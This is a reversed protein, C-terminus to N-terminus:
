GAMARLYPIKKLVYIIGFSVALCLISIIPISVIVPLRTYTIGHKFFLDLVLIHVLFIGYSEASIRGVWNRLLLPLNFPSNKFLLYICACMVAINPKFNDMYTEDMAHTSASLRYTMFCTYALALIFVSILLASNIKKPQKFLFNGLLLYGIFGSFYSYDFSIDYKEWLPQIFLFLFWLSIFFAQEALNNHQVWRYLVPILLYMSIIMYVFWMHVATGTALKTALLATKDHMNMQHQFLDNGNYYLLYVLSWFLFPLVIRRFTKVFFIKLNGPYNNLAFTGTLMVFIPVCWRVAADYINATVWSPLPISSFDQEASVCVHLVIVAITAAARLSNAWSLVKKSM